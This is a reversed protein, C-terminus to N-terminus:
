DGQKPLLFRQQTEFLYGVQFLLDERGKSAMFQIGLPLGEESLATPLSIAPQGTLNALQTYPTLAYSKAFMEEILEGAASKGLSEIEHLRQRISDSQLDEEILPAPFATTPTLFLDYTSFVEEMKEALQDWWQLALVYDAAPLKKGYQYLAWTMLEMEERRVPVQRAANIEAFMAATEGGNMAYYTTMMQQGDVPYGVEVVEHGQKELFAAASRVAQIATESVQGGTPSATTFAVKLRPKQSAQQHHWEVQPAQYPATPQSTRLAYFLQQTDRMSLTLAFNISAGQWSRWESPGVPMTGRTPKLGILGSFSAPIRISGGGDSAGAIPFMGSAVAAAAGGSSGGASYAPNWPNRTPGYLTPDTINKFGFEPANTQGLPVFGAEELRSVFHATRSARAKAFLKAGSTAPWGAKTQGLIKLPMPQGGFVTKQLHQEYHQIAAQPDFTVLANLLPNQQNVKEEIMAVREAFSIQGQRLQEAWYTADQM